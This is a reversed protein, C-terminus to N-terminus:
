RRRDAHLAQRVGQAVREIEDPGLEGTVIIIPPRSMDHSRALQDAIAILAAAICWGDGNPFSEAYARKAAALHDVRPNSVSFGAPHETGHDHPQGTDTM